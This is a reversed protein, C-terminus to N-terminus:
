FEGHNYWREADEWASIASWMQAKAQQTPFFTNLKVPDGLMEDKVGEEVPTYNSLLRTKMDCLHRGRGRYDQIIRDEYEYLNTCQQLMGTKMVVDSDLTNQIACIARHYQETNCENPYYGYRAVMRDIKANTQALEECLSDRFLRYKERKKECERIETTLLGYEM